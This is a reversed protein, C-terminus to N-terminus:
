DTTPEESGEKKKGQSICYFFVYSLSIMLSIVRLLNFPFNWCARPKAVLPSRPSKVSGVCGVYHVRGTEQTISLSRKCVATRLSETGKRRLGKSYRLGYIPTAAERM